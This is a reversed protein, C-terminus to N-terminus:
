RADMEDRVQFVMTQLDVSEPDNMLAVEIGKLVLKLQDMTMDQLTALEEATYGPATTNIITM